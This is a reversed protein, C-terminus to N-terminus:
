PKVQEGYTRVSRAKQSAHQEARSSAALLSVTTCIDSGTGQSQVLDTLVATLSAAWALCDMMLSHDKEGKGEGGGRERRREGEREGEGEGEREGERERGWPVYRVQVCM